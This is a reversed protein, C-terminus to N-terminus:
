LRIHPQILKLMIDVFILFDQHTNMHAIRVRMPELVSMRAMFTSKNAFIDKFPSWNTVMLSRLNKLQTFRLVSPDYDDIWENSEGAMNSEIEDKVEPPIKPGKGKPKSYWDSGFKNGFRTDILLRLSRELEFLHAYAETMRNQAQTFDPHTRAMHTSVLDEAWGEASDKVRAKYAEDSEDPKRMPLIRPTDCLPELNLYKVAEEILDLAGLYEYESIPWAEAEPHMPAGFPRYSFVLYVAHKMEVFNCRAARVHLPLDGIYKQAIREKDYREFFDAGFDM